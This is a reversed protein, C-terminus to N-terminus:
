RTMGDAVSSESERIQESTLSNDSEIGHASGGILRRFFSKRPMPIAQVKLDGERKYNMKGMSSFLRTARNNEGCGVLAGSTHQGYTVLLSDFSPISDGDDFPRKKGPIHDRERCLGEGDAGGFDSM